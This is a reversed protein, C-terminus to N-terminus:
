NKQKWYTGNNCEESYWDITEEKFSSKWDEESDNKYLRYHYNSHNIHNVNKSINIKSTSTLIIDM